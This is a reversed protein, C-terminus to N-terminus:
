GSYTNSQVGIVELSNINKQYQDAVLFSHSANCIIIPDTLSELANLYLIIEQPMNNDGALPFYQKCSLSWLGMGTNGSLFVPIIM